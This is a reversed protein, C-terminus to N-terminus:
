AAAGLNNHSPPRIRRTLLASLPRLAFSTARCSPMERCLRARQFCAARNVAVTLAAAWGASTSTGTGFPLAPMASTGVLYHAGRERLLALNDESIVEADTLSLMRGLTGDGYYSLGQEDGVTVLVLYLAWAKADARRLYDARVLRHDIWSFHPPVRRLREAQLIRKAILM